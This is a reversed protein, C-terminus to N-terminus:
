GREIRGAADILDDMPRTFRRMGRGGLSGFVLFLAVIVAIVPLAGYQRALLETVSAVGFAFLLVVAMFLCGLRWVFGPARGRGRWYPPPWDRDEPWWAPRRSPPPGWRRSM